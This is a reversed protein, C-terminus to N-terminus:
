TTWLAEYSARYDAGSFLAEEDNVDMGQLNSKDFLRIPVESVAPKEGVMARMLRDVASWGLWANSNGIDAVQVNGDLIFQLNANVANISALRVNSGYGASKIVPIQFQAQADFSSLVWNTDPNALLGSQTQTQSETKFNAIQAEFTDLTCDSSCYKEFGAQVGEEQFALVSFEPVTFYLAHVPGDTNAVAYAVMLEGPKVYDLTAEGATGPQPQAASDTNLVGIVPIDAANAEDVAALVFKPDISILAIGGADAAVAQKIGRAQVSTQGKGDFAIPELGVTRAAEEFGQVIRQHFPISLDASVIWVQEGGLPGVDIAPGPSIFEVPAKAQEVFARAAEQDGSGGGGPGQDATDGCAAAALGVVAAGVLFRWGRRRVSVTVGM